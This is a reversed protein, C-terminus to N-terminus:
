APKWLSSDSRIRPFCSIAANVALVDSYERHPAVFPGVAAITWVDRSLSDRLRAYAGTHSTARLTCVHICCRFERCPPMVQM